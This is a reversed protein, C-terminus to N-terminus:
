RIPREEVVHLSQILDARPEVVEFQSWRGPLLACTEDDVQPGIPGVKVRIPRVVEYTVVRDINKKWNSRVALGERVDAVSRIRDFTGFRGPKETPQGAALAMQFRTGAPLTRQPVQDDSAFWDPWPSPSATALRAYAQKAEEDSRYRWRQEAWWLKGPASGVSQWDPCGAAALRAAPAVVAGTPACAGLALAGIVITGRDM